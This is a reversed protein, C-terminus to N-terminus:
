LRFIKEPISVYKIKLLPNQKKPKCNFFTPRMKQALFM